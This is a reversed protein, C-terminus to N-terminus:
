PRIKWKPGVEARGTGIERKLILICAYGKLSYSNRSSSDWVHRCVVPLTAANIGSRNPAYSATLQPFIPYNASSSTRHPRGRLGGAFGGLREPQLDRSHEENKEGERACDCTPTLELAM